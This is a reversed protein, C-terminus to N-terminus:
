FCDRWRRPTAAKNGKWESGRSKLEGTLSRRKFLTGCVRKLRIVSIFLRAETEDLDDRIFYSSALLVTSARESRFPCGWLSVDASTVRLFPRLDLKPSSQNWRNFRFSLLLLKQPENSKQDCTPPMWEVSRDRNLLYSIIFIVSPLVKRDPTFERHSYTLYIISRLCAQSYAYFWLSTM